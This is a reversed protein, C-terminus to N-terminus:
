TAHLATGYIECLSEGPSPYIHFLHLSVSITGGAWDYILTGILRGSTKSDVDVDGSAAGLALGNESATSGEVFFWNASADVDSHVKLKVYGEPGGLIEASKCTGKLHLPGYALVEESRQQVSQDTEVRWHIRQVRSSSVFGSSDKGDLKDANLNAVKTGSNTTFPAHGSAVSLGLATAGTGTSTNAVQLAKDSIPASLTSKSSATNPKGLIFNGGTAALTTGGGVVLFLALTSIVNSYTLLSRLWQRM